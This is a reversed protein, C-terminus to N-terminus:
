DQYQDGLIFPFNRCFGNEDDLGYGKLWTEDQLEIGYTGNFTSNKSKFLTVPYIAYPPPENWLYKDRLHNTIWKITKGSDYIDDIIFVIKDSINIEIDKTLKVETSEKGVYSKVRIFDIKLPFSLKKVLDSFFMFAGNLVCIFVVEKKPGAVHIVYDNIKGALKKIASDLEQETFLKNM